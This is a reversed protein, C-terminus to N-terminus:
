GDHGFPCNHEIWEPRVPAETGTNLNKVTVLGDNAAVVKLVSYFGLQNRIPNREAEAEPGLYYAWFVTQGPRFNM